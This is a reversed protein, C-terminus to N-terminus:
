WETITAGSTAVLYEPQLAGVPKQGVINDQIIGDDKKDAAVRYFTEEDVRLGWSTVRAAKNSEENFITLEIPRNRADIAEVILYYNRGSTNTPPQRWIGSQKNPRVVIRLRYSQSLQAELSTLNAVVSEAVETNGATLASRANAAIREAEAVIEPTKAISRIHTLSAGIQAPLGSLLQRQPLVEATFYVGYFIAALVALFGVPKSWRTRSVWLRAVRTRWSSPVAQYQFREQELASIGEELVHDPVDIGQAAYMDKLRSLLRERRGDGDLERAVLKEQHRLTDVVDMAVMIDELAASQHASEPM